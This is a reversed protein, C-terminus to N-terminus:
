LPTVHGQKLHLAGRVASPSPQAGDWSIKSTIGLLKQKIAVSDLNQATGRQEGVVLQPTEAQGLVPQLEDLGAGEEAALAEM